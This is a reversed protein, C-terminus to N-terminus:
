AGKAAAAAPAGATAAGYGGAGVLSFLVGSLQPDSHGTVNLVTLVCVAFVVLGAHIAQSQNM